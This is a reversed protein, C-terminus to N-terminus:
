QVTVTHTVSATHGLNDTVTLKVTYTGSATYAHFTFSSTSSSGDGFTWSYNTIYAGSDTSGSANFFVWQGRVATTASLTFAAVPTSSAGGSVTVPHSVSNSQGTSDTITLTVTYTGATSYSHSVSAGSGSSGDGFNWSYSTITAGTDTSISGNFSVSQNATPSTPSFTFVAVPISAAGSVAVTHSISNTQGASDKITLTVTYSGSTTYTHSALAGSGSAGDGFTWSYSTITSGTDTSGSGNFSVSQGATPSTPSFTFAATPRSVVGGSMRQVCTSSSNSWEQQLEYRGSSIQENYQAGLSGGLASGFNWGCKDGIEQGSSDYWANGLPDTIAEIDEHSTVNLTQDAPNGNPYQGSQCGSVDAYPMVAYLTSGTGSGFSSHYACYDFNRGGSSCDTSAGSFCTAVGAPTFIFYLTGLGRPLGSRSIVTTLESEM